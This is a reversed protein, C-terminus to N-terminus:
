WGLIMIGEDTEYLCTDDKPSAVPSWGHDALRKTGSSTLNYVFIGLEGETDFAEYLVYESDSTSSPSRAGQVLVDLATYDVLPVTLLAASENEVLTTFYIDRGNRGWAFDDGVLTVNLDYNLGGTGLTLIMLDFGSYTRTQILLHNGTPSAKPHYGESWVVTPEVPEGYPKMVIRSQQDAFAVDSNNIWAPHTAGEIQEEITSDFNIVLLGYELEPSSFAIHEGDPSVVYDHNHTKDWILTNSDDSFKHLYIGVPGEGSRYSFLFGSGDPLWVPDQADAVVLENDNQQGGNDKPCGTLIPLLAALTLLLIVPWTSKAHQIM